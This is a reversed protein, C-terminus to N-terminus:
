RKRFPSLAQRWTLLIKDMEPVFNTRIYALADDESLPIGDEQLENSLDAAM